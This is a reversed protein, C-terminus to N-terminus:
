LCQKGFRTEFARMLSVDHPLELVRTNWVEVPAAADDARTTSASEGVWVLGEQQLWQIQPHKTAPLEVTLTQESQFQELM